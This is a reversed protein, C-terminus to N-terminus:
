LVCIEDLEEQTIPSIDVDFSGGLDDWDTGTWAYNKGTDEVNYVHGSKADIRKSELDSYTSVSGQYSYVNVMDSKKVYTDPMNDITKKDDASMLGKATITAESSPLIYTVIKGGTIHGNTDKTIESYATLKGGWDTSLTDSTPSKTTVSPHAHTHDKTAFTDKIKAWLDILRELSLYKDKQQSAM